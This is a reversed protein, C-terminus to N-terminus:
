GIGPAQSSPTHPSLARGRSGVILQIVLKAV